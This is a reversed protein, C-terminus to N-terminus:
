YDASTEIDFDDYAGDWEDYADIFDDLDRYPEKAERELEAVVRAVVIPHQRTAHASTWEREERLQAVARRAIASTTGTMAEIAHVQRWYRDLPKSM